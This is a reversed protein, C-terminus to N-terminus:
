KRVHKKSTRNTKNKNHALLIIEFIRNKKENPKFLLHGQM